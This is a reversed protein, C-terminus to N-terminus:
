APTFDIYYEKGLELADAAAQNITNLEISGGPSWKWFAKNEPTDGMVPRLKVYHSPVVNGAADKGSATTTKSEVTFKARVAAM